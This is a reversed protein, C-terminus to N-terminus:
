KEPFRSMAYESLATITLSPNVGLNSPVMSGDIVYMGPYNFMEFNEDIRNMLNDVKDQLNMVNKELIEKEENLIAIAKKRIQEFKIFRVPYKRAMAAENVMEASNM